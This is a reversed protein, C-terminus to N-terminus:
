VQMRPLRGTWVGGEESKTPSLSLLSLLLLIDEIDVLGGFRGIRGVEGGEVWPSGRGGLKLSLGGGWRLSGM